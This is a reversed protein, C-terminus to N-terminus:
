LRGGRERRLRDSCDGVTETESNRLLEFRSMSERYEDLRRQAHLVNDARYALGAGLDDLTCHRTAKVVGPAVAIASPFGAFMPLPEQEPEDCFEKILEAVQREALERLYAAAEAAHEDLFAAALEAKKHEGPVGLQDALYARLLKRLSM